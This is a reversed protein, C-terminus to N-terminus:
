GDMVVTGVYKNCARRVRRTGVYSGAHLCLATMSRLRRPRKPYSCEGHGRGIDMDDGDDDDDDDADDADVEIGPGDGGLDVMM